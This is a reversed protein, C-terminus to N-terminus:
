PDDESPPPLVPISKSRMREAVTGAPPPPLDLAHVLAANVDGVAMVGELFPNRFPDPLSQQAAPEPASVPFRGCDSVDACSIPGTPLPLEL